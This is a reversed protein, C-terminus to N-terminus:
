RAVAWAILALLAAAGGTLVLKLDRRDRATLPAADLVYRRTGTPGEVSPIGDLETIRVGLRQAAETSTLLPSTVRPKAPAYTAHPGDLELVGRLDTRM